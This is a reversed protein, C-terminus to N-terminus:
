SAKDLTFPVVNENQDGPQKEEIAKHDTIDLFLRLSLVPIFIMLYKHNKNRKDYWIKSKGVPVSFDFGDEAKEKKTFVTYRHDPTYNKVLYYTESPFMHLKIEFFARTKERNAIGCEFGRLFDGNKFRGTYLKHESAKYYNIQIM